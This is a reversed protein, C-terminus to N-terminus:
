LAEHQEPLINIAISRVNGRGRTRATWVHGDAGEISLLTAEGDDPELDPWDRWLEVQCHRTFSHRSLLSLVRCAQSEDGVELLLARTKVLMAVDLLRSYFVDERRWGEALRLSEDPVLALRPEYKRVSYGLQGRGHDWVDEEIYPPNSILLDWRRDLLPKLDEDRFVDGEVFELHQGERPLPLSGARTNHKVNERALNVAKPSIDVGFIALSDFGPSLSAFLQLPICGTGTCFDVINLAAQKPHSSRGVAQGSNLLGALFCTYAETEPRPILVGTRCKIDLQGFPQSGLIYQLPVGRGRQLCMRKLVGHSPYRASESAHNQIWRLENRASDLDRCAPLLAALHPSEQKARLLLQPSLRPM